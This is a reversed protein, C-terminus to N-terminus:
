GKYFTLDPYGDGNLSDAHKLFDKVDAKSGPNEEIWEEAWDKYDFADGILEILQKGTGAYCQPQRSGYPILICVYKGSPTLKQMSIETLQKM